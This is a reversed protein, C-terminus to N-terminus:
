IRRAVYGDPRFLDLRGGSKKRGSGPDRKEIASGASARDSKLAYIQLTVCIRFLSRAHHHSKKGHVPAHMQLFCQRVSTHLTIEM